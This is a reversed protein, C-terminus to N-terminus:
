NPAPAGPSIYDQQNHIAHHVLEAINVWNGHM